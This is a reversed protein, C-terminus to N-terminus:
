IHILSLDFVKSLLGQIKDAADKISGTIGKLISLAGKIKDMIKGMIAGIIDQILCLATDLVNELLDSLIGKIFDGLEGLIQKFLCSVLDGVSKLQDKVAVDLEPDPIGIDNLGDQVLKNVDEMVVGKINATLGLMKRQIREATQSIKLDLDIVTGTAEEIYEGISNQKIGRSFKMFEALPGELKTATESGCKGNGVQVTVKKAEDAAKQSASFQEDGGRPNRTSGAVAIGDSRTSAADLGTDEDTEITNGTGAVGSGSSGHVREDYEPAALQAFGTESGKETGYAGIPNEDGVAGMVIPVQAAAGDMFFGIVWSNIQLQHHGGIGSRQPM